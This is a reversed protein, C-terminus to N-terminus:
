LAQVLHEDGMLQPGDLHLAVGLGGRQSLALLRTGGRHFPLSVEERLVAETGEQQHVLVEAPHM